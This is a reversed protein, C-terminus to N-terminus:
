FSLVLAIFKLPRVLDHSFIMSYLQCLKNHFSTFHPISNRLIGRLPTFKLFLFETIKVKRINIAFISSVNCLTLATIAFSNSCLTIKTSQSQKGFM